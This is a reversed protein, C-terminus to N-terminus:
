GALPFLTLKKEKKKKENKPSQKTKHLPIFLPFLDLFSYTPPCFPSLNRVLDEDGNKQITFNISGIGNVPVRDSSTVFELLQRVQLDDFDRVVLWFWQM